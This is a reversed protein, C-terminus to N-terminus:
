KGLKLSVSYNLSVDNRTVGPLPRSSYENNLTIRFFWKEPVITFQLFAEAYTRYDGFDAILPFYMFDTGLQAYDSLRVPVIFRAAGRFERQVLGTEYSSYEPMPGVSIVVRDRAKEQLLFHYCIGASNATRYKLLLFKNKGHTSSVYLNLHPAAAYTYLFAARTKDMVVSDGFKVHNEEAQIFFTNKEDMLRSFDMRGYYGVSDVNGHMYSGGASLDLSYVKVPQWKEPARIRLDDYRSFQQAHLTVPAFCIMALMTLKSKM